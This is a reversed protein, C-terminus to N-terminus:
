GDVAPTNVQASEWGADPFYEWKSNISPWMKVSGLPSPVPSSRVKHSRASGKATELRAIHRVVVNDVVNERYTRWDSQQLYKQCLFSDKPYTTTLQKLKDLTEADSYKFFVEKAVKVVECGASVLTFRRDRLKDEKTQRKISKKNHSTLNRENQQSPSNAKEAVPLCQDELELLSWAGQSPSYCYSQSSNSIFSFLNLLQFLDMNLSYLLLLNQLCLCSLIGYSLTLNKAM